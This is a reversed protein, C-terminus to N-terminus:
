LPGLGGWGHEPKEFPKVPPEGLSNSSESPQCVSCLKAPAPRPASGRVGARKAGEQMGWLRQSRRVRFRTCDKVEVCTKTTGRSKTSRMMGLSEYSVRSRALETADRLALETTDHGSARPGAAAAVGRRLRSLFRSFSSLCVAQGTSTPM